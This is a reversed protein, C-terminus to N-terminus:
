SLHPDLRIITGFGSATHANRANKKGSIDEHLMRCM